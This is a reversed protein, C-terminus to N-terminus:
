KMVNVENLANLDEYNPFAEPILDMEKPVKSDIIDELIRDM